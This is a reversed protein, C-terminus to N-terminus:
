KVVVPGRWVATAGGAAAELEPYPSADLLVGGIVCKAGAVLSADATPSIVAIPTKENGDVTITVVQFGNKTAVSKVTGSLIVGSDFNKATVAKMAASNLNEQNKVNQTNKKFLDLGKKWNESTGAKEADFFTMKEVLAMLDSTKKVTMAAKLETEGYAPPVFANEPEAAVDVEDLVPIDLGADSLNADMDAMPDFDPDFPTESAGDDISAAGIFDNDDAGDDGGDDAEDTQMVARDPSSNADADAEEDVDNLMGDVADRMAQEGNKFDASTHVAPDYGPLLWTPMWNWAPEQVHYYTSPFFPTPMGPINREDGMICLLLIHVIPLSILGGIVVQIIEKVLSKKKRPAAKRVPTKRPVGEGVTAADAGFAASGSGFAAPGGGFNSGFGDVLGYGPDTDAAARALGEPILSRLDLPEGTAVDILDSLYFEREDDPLRVLRDDAALEEAPEPEAEEAAAPFSFGGPVAEPLGGESDAAPFGDWADEGTIEEGTIEEEPTDEDDASEAVAAETFMGASEDDEEPFDFEEATEPEPESEDEFEPEPEPESQEDAEPELRRSVDSPEPLEEEDEDSFIYGPTNEELADQEPTLDSFFSFFDNDGDEAADEPQNNEEQPEQNEDLFDFNPNDPGSTM